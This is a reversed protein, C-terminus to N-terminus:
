QEFERVIPEAGDVFYRVSFEEPRKSIGEYGIDVKVKIEPRPHQDLTRSWDEEM